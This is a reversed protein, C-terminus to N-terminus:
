SSGAYSSPQSMPCASRATRTIRSMPQVALHPYGLGFREVRHSRAPPTPGDTGRGVCRGGRGTGPTRPRGNDRCAPCAIEYLIPSRTHSSPRSSARRLIPLSKSRRRKWWRARSM